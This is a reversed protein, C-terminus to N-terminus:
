INKVKTKINEIDLYNLYNVRIEEGNWMDELYLLNNYIYGMSESESPILTLCRGGVALMLHYDGTDGGIYKGIVQYCSALQRVDLGRIYHANELPTFNSYGNRYFNEALGFQLITFKNSLYTAIQQIIIRPPLVFLARQNNPDSSGSNDNIIVIPNEYQKLFDKAWDIESQDLKIEPILNKNNYDIGIQSFIQKTNHTKKDLKYHNLGELFEVNTLNKYISSIKRCREEDATQVTYNCYKLAPTIWLNDGLNSSPAVIKM